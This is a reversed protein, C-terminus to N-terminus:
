DIGDMRILEPRRMKTIIGATAQRWLDINRHNGSRLVEPIRLGEYEEPRTYHPADLRNGQFSDGRASDFDGLAGPILRIAADLMVVAALEGGTIVYDGLSYERDAFREIVRQDLGKYHGCIFILHRERSLAEAHAQRFPEGAASPCIVLPRREAGALISKLARFFPEPKLLMGAGGGFIYDDAQQHKDTTFSRLNHIQVELLGFQRARRIISEGFFGEILGPFLTIIDVKM